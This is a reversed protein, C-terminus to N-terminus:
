EIAPETVAAPANAREVNLLSVAELVAEPLRERDIERDRALETVATPDATLNIERAREPPETVAAPLRTM